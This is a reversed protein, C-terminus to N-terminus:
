NTIWLLYGIIKYNAIYWISLVLKLEPKLMLKLIQLMYADKQFTRKQFQRYLIHM